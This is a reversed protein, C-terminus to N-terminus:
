VVTRPHAQSQSHASHIRLPVPISHSIIEPTKAVTRLDQPVQLFVSGRSRRINGVKQRGQIIVLGIARIHKIQEEGDEVPQEPM